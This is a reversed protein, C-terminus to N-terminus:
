IGVTNNIHENMWSDNNVIIVTYEQEVSEPIYTCYMLTDGDTTFLHYCNSEPLYQALIEQKM